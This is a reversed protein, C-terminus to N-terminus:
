RVSLGSSEVNMTNVGSFRQRIANAAPISGRSSAGLWASLRPSCRTDDPLSRSVAAAALNLAAGPRNEVLVPHQRARALNDALIRPLLDATPGPPVPVVIKVTRNPYESQAQPVVVPSGALVAALVIKYGVTCLNKM